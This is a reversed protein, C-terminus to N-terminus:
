SMLNKLTRKFGDLEAQWHQRALNDAYSSVLVCHIAVILPLEELATVAHGRQFVGMLIREDAWVARPPGSM